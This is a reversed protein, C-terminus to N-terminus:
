GALRKRRRAMALIGIASLLTLSSPEPVSTPLTFELVRLSTGTAVNSSPGNDQLFISLVGDNVLRSQDLLAHSVFNRNDEHVIEWDSYNADKTAGAIILDNSSTYVAYLNGDADHGIRPRSGVRRETPLQNQVWDGTLPDRHYHYYASDAASFREGPEWDFEGNVGDERRHWMLAHVVGNSDVTQGQQNILSQTRDLEKVVIGQSNLSITQGTDKDAIVLGDNNKWTNGGDQSYAYNIDHNTDQPTERWTWTMHITGDPATDVGNLYANRHPSSSTDYPDSYTGTSGDIVLHSQGWRQNPAGDSNASTGSNYSLFHTNGNGSGGTRYTALLDGNPGDAFRPYTVGSVTGTDQANFKAREGSPVFFLNDADATQSAWASSSITARNIGRTTLYRLNDVHHDYALHIRGDGSIGMGIVNHSDWSMRGTGDGDEDGNVMNYGTDFSQWTNTPDTLDRRALYIDQENNAGNHYWTAFQYGGFSILPESQHANGNISRNGASTPMLLANNDLVMDSSLSLTRQGYAEAEMGVICAFVIGIGSALYRHVRQDAVCRAPVLGFFVRYFLRKWCIPCHPNPM